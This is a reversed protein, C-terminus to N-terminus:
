ESYIKYIEDLSRERLRLGLLSAKNNVIIESIRPRMDRNCEILLSDDFRKVDSVEPVKAIEKIIHDTIYRAQAEIIWKDGKEWAFDSYKSRVKIKGGVMIGVQDCIEQVHHILHSSIFITVKEDRNMEKLINLIDQVGGPDIGQTPEDLFAIKPKKVLVNAIGLRQKMGRSFKGVLLDSQKLLGVKELAEDIRENQIDLPIKNLKAIYKLNQGATINEYLGVKEQLYGCIRKVKLPEKMPNFGYVSCSGSTSETLGLLMLIITTKGAGNPGLLGFITGTKIKLNLNSVAVFDDYKKTLRKTEIALSRTM